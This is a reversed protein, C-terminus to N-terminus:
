EPGIDHSSDLLDADLLFRRALHRLEPSTLTLLGIVPDLRVGEEDSFTDILHDLYDCNMGGTLTICLQLALEIKSRHILRNFRAGIGAQEPYRM